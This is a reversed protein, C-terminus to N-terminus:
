QRSAHQAPGPPLVRDILYVTANSTQINGCLVHATDGADDTIRLMDGDTNIRLRGGGLTPVTGSDLLAQRDLRGETIHNNLLGTV